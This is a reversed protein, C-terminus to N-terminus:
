RKTQPRLQWSPKGRRDLEIYITAGASITIAGLNEGVWVEPSKEKNLIMPINVAVLSGVIGWIVKNDSLYMGAGYGAGGFWLGRAYAKGFLTYNMTFNHGEGNFNWTSEDYNSAIIPSNFEQANVEQTFLSGLCFTFLILLKKM